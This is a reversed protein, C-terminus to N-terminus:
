GARTLTRSRGRIRDRISARGALVVTLHPAPRSGLLHGAVLAFPVSAAVWVGLGLLTWLLWGPM